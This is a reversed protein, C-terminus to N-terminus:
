CRWTAADTPEPGDPASTCSLAPLFPPPASGPVKECCVVCLTVVVFIPHWATIGEVEAQLVFVVVLVAANVLWYKLFYQFM